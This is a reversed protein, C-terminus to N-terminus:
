RRGVPETRITVAAALRECNAIAQEADAGRAIVHGVRDESWTLEPVLAGAAVAIELEVLAPDESVAQAGSVEVVRGPAPTLFRIAAGGAPAPPETLPPVLGFPAGLAYSDMDIGYVLEALENIRDGGIRNHSEIVVPGRPTLKLETHAPGDRLGVADLLAFVLPEARRVDPGPHRSPMSHGLEVFGAPGAGIVKDTVAVVVHRGDFSLTEVSIEPGDLYEEMLFEELPGALDRPDLLAGLERYRALVAPVEAETRVALVCISGAERTPKVVVPLGHREVFARLDDETRGIAAAVPSVGVAELRQRMQWKDLLLEVTEPTTGGLGLAQSIRAAPLLGLEFLSVVKQFPYARHLASVLPLLREVDSYDLLLAQDVYPRHAEGYSGPYQLYVVRLGLTRAKQVIKPRGGIVLVVPEAPPIAPPQAVGAAETAPETASEAVPEAMPVTVPEAMPVAGPEARSGAVPAASEQRADSM